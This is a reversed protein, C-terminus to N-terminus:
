ANGYKQAPVREISEHGAKREARDDERIQIKGGLPLADLYVNISGDKNMFASGIRNWYTREQGEKGEKEIVQLAMMPKRGTTRMAQQEM